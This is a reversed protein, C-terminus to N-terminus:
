RPRGSVQAPAGPGAATVARVKVTVTVGKRGPITVATASTAKWPARGVQYEYTFATAGGTDTPSSWSVRVSGKASAARLGSPTGPRAEMLAIGCFMGSAVGIVGRSFESAVPVRVLTGLYTERWATLAGKDVALNVYGSAVASVSNSFYLERPVEESSGAIRVAGSKVYVVLGLGANGAGVALQTVGTDVVTALTPDSDPVWSILTGDDKLAYVEYNGGAVAKVGASAEIPVGSGDGWTIAAGDRIAIAVRGGASISSVGSRAAMPIVDDASVDSSGIEMEGWGVVAGDKLALSYERAAAVQVVGSELGSPVEAQGVNVSSDRGTMWAHAQGNLVVLSHYRGVAVSQVLGERLNGPVYCNVNSEAADQADFEISVIRNRQLPLTSRTAVPSGSTAVSSGTEERASSASTGASLSVPIVLAASLLAAVTRSDM